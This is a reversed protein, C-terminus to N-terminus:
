LAIATTSIYHNNQTIQRRPRPRRARTSPPTIPNACRTIYRTKQPPHGHCRPPTECRDNSIKRQNQRQTRPCLARRGLSVRASRRRTRSRRLEVSPEQLIQSPAANTRETSSPGHRRAADRSFGVLEVHGCIIAAYPFARIVSSRPIRNKVPLIRPRHARQRDRRRIGICNIHAAALSQQPRIKGSAVPDIFGFVGSVGPLMQSQAVALLDRVDYDVWVVAIANKRRHQSM